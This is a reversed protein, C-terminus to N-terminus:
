PAPLHAAYAADRRLRRRVAVGAHYAAVGFVPVAAAGGITLAVGYGFLPAPTSLLMAVGIGISLVHSFAVLLSMLFEDVLPGLYGYTFAVAPASLGAAVLVSAELSHVSAIVAPVAVVAAAVLVAGFKAAWALPPVRTFTAPDHPLFPRACEPCRRTATGSLDFGCSRCLPPRAPDVGRALRFEPLHDAARTFGPRAM